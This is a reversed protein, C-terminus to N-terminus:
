RGSRVLRVDADDDLLAREAAAATVNDAVRHHGAATAAPRDSQAV